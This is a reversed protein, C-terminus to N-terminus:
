GQGAGGIGLNPVLELISLEESFIKSEKTYYHPKTFIIIDTIRHESFQSFNTVAKTFQPWAGLFTLPRM